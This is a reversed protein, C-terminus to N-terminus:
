ILGRKARKAKWGVPGTNNSGNKWKKIKYVFQGKVSSSGKMDESRLGGCKTGWYMFKKVRGWYRTEDNPDIPYGSIM